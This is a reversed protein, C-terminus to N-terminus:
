TGPSRDKRRERSEVMWAVLLAAGILGPILGISWPANVQAMFIGLGLGTAVLVLGGALTGHVLGRNPPSLLEPPVPLGKEALQRITEHTMRLRHAKFGLILGLCALPFTFVALTGAVAVLTINSDM